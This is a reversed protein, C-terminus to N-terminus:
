AGMIGTADASLAPSAVHSPRELFGSCIFQAFYTHLLRVDVPPCTIGSDALGKLTNRCDIELDKAHETYGHAEEEARLAAFLPMFPFLANEPSRAVHSFLVEYWEQNSIQRLPYGYDCLFDALGRWYMPQPNSFHFAQGLSAPQRSLQVIARSVYDVPTINIMTDIDPLTDLDPMVGLQICGKIISWILDKTNGMGTRSDGSIVGPRYICAPVGRQRAISIIKEAVWKTEAYGSFFGSSHPLPNDERIGSDRAYAGPSFVAISSIFHFPKVQGQCALRLAEQVSLVNAAKLATYPYTFNVWAGCHYIADVTRGLTQFQDEALGWLSQTLDGLVPTIREAYRDDWLRYAELNRRIRQAGETATPARVVCHIQAQTQELLEYLLFAGLFGTAGTLCVATLDTVVEVTLAESPTISADLVVETPLDVATSNAVAAALGERRVLEITEAQAAVTPAEFLINLPLDVDCALHLQSFLQAALLSHGGLEFFNDHLGVQEIGLLNQWIAAITHELENGPAVYANRANPRRPSATLAPEPVSTPEEVPAFSVQPMDGSTPASSSPRLAGALYQPQAEIWYRQREFPYTPLPVRRREEGMTLKQWDIPGGALWLKGVTQLLFAVDSQREYPVHLSPLVIRETKGDGQAQQLALSGLSQGPGLELLIRGPATWLERVGAAFRVPQRLHQGWYAPDAAQASTIWTGTVNSIYPIAPQKLTVMRALRTFPEVIPDMMMSHFAHSAQLRRSAVGQQTLRRELAEIEEPPGAVVCVSPANVAALSLHGGLQPVLAEEPLMVSLMAGPPLDQIMQARQAVLLLADEISLVGGVCAAVYEGLSHGIVAQPRVGWSMWLQALAYEIVFLVPQAFVTQNLTQTATDAQPQPRRKLLNRLDLGSQPAPRGGTPEVPATTGNPYLVDRVDVNLLSKLVEACHDISERFVVETQYLELAMELYHDGLGPFM